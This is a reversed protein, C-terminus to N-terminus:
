SCRESSLAQLIRGNNQDQVFVAVGIDAPNWSKDLYFDQTINKVSKGSIDFPGRLERVVFDHRLQRGNNEGASVQTVLNSQYLAVFVASRRPYQSPSLMINSKATLKRRGDRTLTLKINAEAPMSSLEAIRSKIRGGWSWYRFDRGDVVIQPTYITNLRNVSAVRRQRQTYQKKAFRDTWGIYDWYDVHFSLPIMKGAAFSKGPLERLWSDAPPCSSCGESTYLEVLATKNVGSSVKCQSATAPLSVVGLTFLLLITKASRTRHRISQNMCPVVRIAGM